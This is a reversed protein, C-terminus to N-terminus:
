KNGVSNLTELVSPNLDTDAFLTNEYIISIWEPPVENFAGDIYKWAHFDLFNIEYSTVKLPAYRGGFVITLIVKGDTRQVSETVLGLRRNSTIDSGYHLIEMPEVRARSVVSYEPDPWNTNHWSIFEGQSTYIQYQAFEENQLPSNNKVIVRFDLRIRAVGKNIHVATLFKISARLDPFRIQKFLAEVYHHPAHKTQGDLRMHYANNYQHPRYESKQIEIVYVYKTGDENRVPFIQVGRPAPIISDSITRILDDNPIHTTIPALEGVCFNDNKPERPAGWIVLGGDSNLMACITKYIKDPLTSGSSPSYSKFEVHNNETKPSEFYKEVDTYKLENGNPVGFQLNVFNVM